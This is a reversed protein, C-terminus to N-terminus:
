KKRVDGLFCMYPRMIEFIVNKHLIADNSVFIYRKKSTNDHGM